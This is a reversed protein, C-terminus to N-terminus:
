IDETVYIFYVFWAMYSNINNYSVLKDTNLQLGLKRLTFKNYVM